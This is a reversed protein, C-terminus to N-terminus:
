PTAGFMQEWIEPLFSSLHRGELKRRTRRKSNQLCKPNKHRWEQKAKIDQERLERATAVGELWQDRALLAGFTARVYVASLYFALGDYDNEPTNTTELYWKIHEVDGNRLTARGLSVEGKRIFGREYEPSGTRVVDLELGIDLVIRSLLAKNM